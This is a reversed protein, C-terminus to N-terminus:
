DRRLKQGSAFWIIVTALLLAGVTVLLSGPVTVVVYGLTHLTSNWFRDDALADAYNELGVFPAHEPRTGQDLRLLSTVLLRWVPFVVVLGLLAAAPALMAFGLLRESRELPGLRASM